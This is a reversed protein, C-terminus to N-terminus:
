VRIASPVGLRLVLPSSVLCLCVSLCVSCVFSWPPESPGAQKGNDYYASPPALGFCVVVYYVNTLYEVSTELAPPLFMSLCSASTSPLMPRITPASTGLFAPALVRSASYTLSYLLM